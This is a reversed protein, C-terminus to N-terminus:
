AFIPHCSDVERKANIGRGETGLCAHMNDPNISPRVKPKTTTTTKKKGGAFMYMEPWGM